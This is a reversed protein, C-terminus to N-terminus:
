PSRRSSTGCRICTSAATRGGTPLGLRAVVAQFQENLKKINLPQGGAPYKKSPPRTFTWRRSLRPLVGILPRLRPHIPVQRSEGTKTELGERSEIFIWNNTLDIDQPQLRQLEGARMGTFALVTIPARLPEQLAALIHDVQELSPGDKKELRPKDLKYDSVPNELILKRRWGM